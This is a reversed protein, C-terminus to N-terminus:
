DDRAARSSAAHRREDLARRAEQIAQAAPIGEDLGFKMEEYRRDAEDLWAQEIEPSAFGGISAVLREALEIREAPPLKLLELFKADLNITKADSM